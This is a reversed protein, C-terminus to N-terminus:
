TSFAKEFTMNIQWYDGGLDSSPYEKCVYLQVVSEQNTWYFRKWGAHRDLFSIVQLYEQYTGQWTVLITEKKVNVGEGARQVYGDGFVVERVALAPTINVGKVVKWSFTETAM